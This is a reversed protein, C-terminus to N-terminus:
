MAGSRCNSARQRQSRRIPWSICLSTVQGRTGTLPAPSWSTRAQGHFRFEDTAVTDCTVRTTRPLGVLVDNVEVSDLSSADPSPSQSCAVSLAAIGLLATGSARTV